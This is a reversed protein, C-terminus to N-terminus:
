KGGNEIHFVNGDEDKLAIAGVVQFKALQAVRSMVYVVRAAKRRAKATIHAEAKAFTPDPNRAVGPRMGWKTM